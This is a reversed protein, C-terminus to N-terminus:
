NCAIATLTVEDLNWGSVKYVLLDGIEYGFRVRLSPNKHQTIEFSQKVWAADTVGPSDGTEWLTVWQSGNFVQVVNKMYPAYDSNLWRSYGLFLSTAGSVDREPSTLFLYGHLKIPVNGGVVVGAVGNNTSASVDKAPDPFGYTDGSSAAAPKIEWPPDLLWGKANDAFEERFLEVPIQGTCKAVCSGDQCFHGAGCANGCGGCNNPDLKTDACVGSCESTGGGCNLKCVGGVCNQGAACAKGCEGCNAEDTQHDVCKGDCESAGGGCSLVCQGSKCLEGSSCPKGCAGCHDPDFRSNVECGTERQGDCNLFGPNCALGCAAFSCVSLANPVTQCAADCGGCHEVDSQTDVCSSGCQQKTAPCSAACKGQDCVQGAACAIGCQGCSTVSNLSSECGGKQDCDAFGSQCAEVACAGDGCKAIAKELVCPSCTGCGFAPDEVGVCLGECPSEGPRCTAADAKAGGDFEEGACGAAVGWAVLGGAIVRLQWAIARSLGM